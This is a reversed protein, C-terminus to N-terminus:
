LVCVYIPLCKHAPINLLILFNISGRSIFYLAIEILVGFINKSFISFDM